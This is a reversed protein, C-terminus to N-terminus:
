LAGTIDGPCDAVPQHPSGPFLNAALRALEEDSHGELFAVLDRAASTLPPAADASTTSDRQALELRLEVLTRAADRRVKDDNSRLLARLVLVSEAGVEALLRHEAAHLASQWRKPDLCPWRRVTDVARHLKAAVIDWSSGAARLEAARALQDDSPSRPAAM